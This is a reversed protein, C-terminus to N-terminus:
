TILKKMEGPVQESEPFYHEVGVVVIPTARYVGANAHDIGHLVLHHIEKIFEENLSEDAAM